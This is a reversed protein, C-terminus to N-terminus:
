WPERVPQGDMTLICHYDKVLNYSIPNGKIEIFAGWFGNCKREDLIDQPFDVISNNALNVKPLLRYFGVGWKWRKGGRGEFPAPPFQSIKNNKLSLERMDDMKDWPIKPFHTLLNDDISLYLIEKVKDFNPNFKALQNNSFDVASFKSSEGFLTDPVADLKNAAFILDSLHEKDRFLDADLVSIQNGGFYVKKLQPNKAFATGPLESIINHNFNVNELKPFLDFFGAPIFKIKNESVDLTKLETFGAFDNINLSTLGTKRLNITEIDKLDYNTIFSCTKKLVEDLYKIIPNSRFCIDTIDADLALGQKVGDIIFGEIHLKSDVVAVTLPSQVVVRCTILERYDLKLPGEFSIKWEKKLPDPQELRTKLEASREIYKSEKFGITLLDEELGIRLWCSSKEKQKLLGYWNGMIPLESASAALSWFVIIPTFIKFFHTKSIM